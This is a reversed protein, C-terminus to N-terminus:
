LKNVDMITIKLIATVCSSSTQDLLGTLTVIITAVIRISRTKRRITSPIANAM